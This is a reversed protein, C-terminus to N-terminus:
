DRMEKEKEREIYTYTYDVYSIFIVKKIHFHSVDIM